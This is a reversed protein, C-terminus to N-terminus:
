FSLVGIVSWAYGGEINTPGQLTLTLVAEDRNPLQIVAGFGNQRM